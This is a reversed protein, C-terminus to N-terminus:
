RYPWPLGHSFLCPCSGMADGPAKKGTADQIGIPSAWSRCRGESCRLVSFLPCFVSGCASHNRNQGRDETKQGRNETARRGKEKESRFLVIFRSGMRKRTSPVFCDPQCCRARQKVKAAASWRRR